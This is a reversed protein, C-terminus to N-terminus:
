KPSVGVQEQPIWFRIRSGGSEWYPSEQVGESGLGNWGGLM